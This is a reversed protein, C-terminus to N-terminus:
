WGAPYVKVCILGGEVLGIGSFMSHLYRINVIEGGMGQVM